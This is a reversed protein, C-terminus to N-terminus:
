IIPVSRAIYKSLFRYASPSKLGMQAASGAGPRGYALPYDCFDGQMSLMLDAIGESNSSPFICDPVDSM